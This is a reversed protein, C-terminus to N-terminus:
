PWQGKKNGCFSLGGGRSTFKSVCTKRKRGSLQLAGSLSDTSRGTKLNFVGVKWPAPPGPASRGGLFLAPERGVQGTRRHSRTKAARRWERQPETQGHSQPKYCPCREFVGGARHLPGTTGRAPRNETLPGTGASAGDWRTSPRPRPRPPTVRPSSVGSEGGGSRAHLASPLPTGRGRWARGPGPHASSTGSRPRPKQESRPAPPGHSSSRFPRRLNKPSRPAVESVCTNEPEDFM